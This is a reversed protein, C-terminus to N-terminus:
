TEEVDLGRKCQELWEQVDNPDFRVDGNPLKLFPIIRRRVMQRVNHAAMGLKIGVDIDTLLRGEIMTTSEDDASHVM